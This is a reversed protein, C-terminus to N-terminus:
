DKLTESIQENQMQDLDIEIEEPTLPTTLKPQDLLEFLDQVKRIILRDKEYDVFLKDGPKLNLDSRVQKPLFLEGKSGVKIEITM